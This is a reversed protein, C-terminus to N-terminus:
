WGSGCGGSFEHPYSDVRREAAPIGVENLLDLTRARAQAPSLDYPPLTETLQRGISYLPELQYAPRSFDGRDKCGSGACRRM